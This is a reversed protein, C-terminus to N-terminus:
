GWDDVDVDVIRGMEGCSELTLDRRCQPHQVVEPSCSLNVPFSLYDFNPHIYGVVRYGPREVHRM